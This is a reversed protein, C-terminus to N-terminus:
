TASAAVGNRLGLLQVLDHIIAIVGSGNRDILSRFFGEGGDIINSQFLVLNQFGYFPSLVSICNV